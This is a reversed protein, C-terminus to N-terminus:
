VLARPKENPDMLLHSSSKTTSTTSTMPMLDPTALRLKALRLSRSTLDQPTNQGRPLRLSSGCVRCFNADDQHFRRYCRPCEAAKRLEGHRDTQNLVLPCAIIGYGAFMVVTAVLRGMITQPAIDGYGVTTITVVTWYLSVPINDFDHGGEILYMACGIVLIMTFLGVLFVVIRRKNSQINDNLATSADVFRALRLVRFVRM